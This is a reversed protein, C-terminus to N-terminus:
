TLGMERRIRSLTVDTVGIYMAVHRLPIRKSEDGFEVLFREYREKANLLLFDAERKEKKLILRELSRRLFDSWNRSNKSLEILHEYQISGTTCQTIAQAFFPSPKGEVLSSVSSFAGGVRVLSKNRENGEKDIYYYRGIGDMMFHVDQVIDGCSFIYDKRAFTHFTFYPYAQELDVQDFPTLHSFIKKLREQYSREM